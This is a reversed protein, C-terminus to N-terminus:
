PVIELDLAQQFREVHRSLTQPDPGTLLAEGIRHRGETFREVDEGPRAEFVLHEVWPQSALREIAVPDYQLRGSQEAGLILITAPKPPSPAPLATADGVARLVAYRTIDFGHACRILRALSNGGLRPSMEIVTPGNVNAVFDCDFVSDRIDLADFINELQAIMAASVSTDLTSPLRHGRTAVFPPAATLRDTVAHFAVRGGELVGEMTHQSGELFREMLCNADLSVMRAAHEGAKREAETRVIQIGKSGSARNPKVIWPGRELSEGDPNSAVLAPHPLGQSAQFTRFARKETLTRAASPAIGPLGLQTAVVASTYVAVDTAAAIVGDVGEQRAMALVADTDTTDIGYARDALRHGPNDPRNDTTIVRLGLERASKIVDMQYESAALVLLTKSM